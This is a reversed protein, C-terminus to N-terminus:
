VERGLREHRLHNNNEIRKRNNWEHIQNDDESDSETDSDGGMLLFMSKENLGDNNSIHDSGQYSCKSQSASSCSSEDDM